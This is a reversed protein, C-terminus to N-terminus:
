SCGASGPWGEATSASCTSESPLALWVAPECTSTFVAGNLTQLRGDGANGYAYELNDFMFGRPGDETPRRAQANNFVSFYETGDEAVLDVRLQSQEELRQMLYSTGRFHEESAPEGFGLEMENSSLDASALSKQQDKLNGSGDIGRTLVNTWRGKDMDCYVSISGQDTSLVYVGSRDFQLPLNDCRNMNFCADGPYFEQAAVSAILAAVSGIHKM